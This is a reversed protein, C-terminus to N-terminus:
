SLLKKPCIKAVQNTVFSFRTHHMSLNKKQLFHVLAPPNQPFLNTYNDYKSLLGYSTALIYFLIAQM